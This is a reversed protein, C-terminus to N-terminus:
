SLPAVISWAADRDTADLEVRITGQIGDVSFSDAPGSVSGTVRGLEGDTFVWYDLQGAGAASRITASSGALRPSRPSSRRATSRSGATVPM